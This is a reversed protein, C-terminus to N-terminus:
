TERIKIGHRWMMLKRKLVYEPTRCGKVDEVVQEGDECYVFDAVYHAAREGGTAPIIEFRVQERLDTIAGCRELLSLEHARRAEKRSAYKGSRIAHYKSM